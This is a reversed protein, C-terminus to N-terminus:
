TLRQELKQPPIYLTPRWQHEDELSVGHYCLILLRQQRWRSNAVVGFMGSTRLMGLAALKLSNLM